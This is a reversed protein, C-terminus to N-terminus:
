KWDINGQENRSIIRESIMKKLIQRADAESIGGRFQHMAVISNLLTKEKKCNLKRLRSVIDEFTLEAPKSVSSTNNDDSFVTETKFSNDEQLEPHPQFQSTLQELDKRALQILSQALALKETYHLAKAEQLIEETTM